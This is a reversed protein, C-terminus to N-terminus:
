RVKHVAYYRVSVSIVNHFVYRVYQAVTAGQDNHCLTTLNLSASITSNLGHPM